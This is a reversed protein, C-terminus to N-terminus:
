KRFVAAQPFIEIFKNKALIDREIEGTVIYGGKKLSRLAKELIIKQHISKYYFLLNACMVIDFDGYISEPPCNLNENFLDFVSFEVIQKLEDNVVYSGDVFTFWRNLRGFSMNELSNINYIGQQALNIQLKNQDSAFIRFKVRGAYLESIEKLIIALSYAEQGGACAMSWIRIEKRNAFTNDAIIEPLVVTELAEYTFRNRFFNSYSIQLSDNLANLENNNNLLFCYEDFSQCNLFNMRKIILQRLFLDDYKIFEENSLAYLLKLVPEFENKM